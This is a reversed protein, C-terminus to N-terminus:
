TRNFNARHHGKDWPQLGFVLDCVTEHETEHSLAFVVEQTIIKMLKQSLYDIVYIIPIVPYKKPTQFTEVGSSKRSWTGFLVDLLM